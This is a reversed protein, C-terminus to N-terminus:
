DRSIRTAARQGRKARLPSCRGSLSAAFPRLGTFFNTTPWPEDGDRNTSHSVCPRNILPSATNLNRHFARALSSSAAALTLATVEQRIAAELFEALPCSRGFLPANRSPLERHWQQGLVKTTLNRFASRRDAFRNRAEIRCQLSFTSAVANRRLLKPSSRRSHRFRLSSCRWNAYLSRRM